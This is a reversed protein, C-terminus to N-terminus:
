IKELYVIDRKLRKDSFLTALYSYAAMGGKAALAGVEALASSEGAVTAITAGTAGAAGGTTTAAAATPIAASAGVPAATSMLEASAAGASAPGASAAPTLSNTLGAAVEKGAEVGKMGSLVADAGKYLEAAAFAGKAAKSLGSEKPGTTKTNRGRGYLNAAGIVQSQANQVRVMQDPTQFMLGQRRAM